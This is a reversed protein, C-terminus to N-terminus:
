LFREADGGRHFKGMCAIVTRFSATVNHRQKEATRSQESDAIECSEIVILNHKNMHQMLHEILQLQQGYSKDQFDTLLSCQSRYV